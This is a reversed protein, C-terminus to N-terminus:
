SSDRAAIYRHPTVYVTLPLTAVLEGKVDWHISKRGRVMALTM